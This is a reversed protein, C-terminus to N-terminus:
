SLVQEKGTPDPSQFRCTGVFGIFSRAPRAPILTKEPCTILNVPGRGVGRLGEVRRPGSVAGQSEQLPWVVPETTQQVQFSEVM